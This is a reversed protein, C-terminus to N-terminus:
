QVISRNLRVVHRDDTIEVDFVGYADFLAIAEAVTKKDSKTTKVIDSFAAGHPFLPRLLDILRAALPFAPDRVLTRVARLAPTAEGRTERDRESDEVLSALDLLKAADEIAVPKNALLAPSAGRHTTEVAGVHTIAPSTSFAPGVAVFEGPSLMPLRDFARRADWGITEAARRVDLDLVNIGILYSHVDSVVSKSLRALRQTALVGALGRKRGRSMLDVIAGISAKRVAASESVQGGFPAFLHAEDIAIIAPTWQERPAEILTSIFVAIMQMQAEREMDSLDLVVSVRHERIRRAAVVIAGPDLKSGDIVLHQFKEALSPLDGEPDIVIQQIMPATQELLRRLTWSKGSGSAGQILLRGEILKAPNLGLPAGAESKGIEIMHPALPPAAIVPRPQPASGTAPATRIMPLKMEARMADAFDRQQRPTITPVTSETPM